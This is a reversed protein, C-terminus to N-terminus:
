DHKINHLYQFLVHGNLPLYYFFSYKLMSNTKHSYPRGVTMYVHVSESLVFLNFMSIYNTKNLRINKVNVNFRTFKFIHKM